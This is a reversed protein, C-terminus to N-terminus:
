KGFSSWGVVSPVVGFAAAWFVLNPNANDQKRESGESSSQHRYPLSQRTHYVIKNNGLKSGKLAILPLPVFRLSHTYKVKERM